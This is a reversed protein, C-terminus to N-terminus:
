KNQYKFPRLNQDTHPGEIEIQNRHGQSKWKIKKKKIM